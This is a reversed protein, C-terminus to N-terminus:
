GMNGDIGACAWMVLAGSVGRRGRRRERSLDWEGNGRGNQPWKQAKQTM